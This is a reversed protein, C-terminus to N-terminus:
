ETCMYVFHSQLLVSLRVTTFILTILSEHVTRTNAQVTTERVMHPKIGTACFVPVERRLSKDGKTPPFVTRLLSLSDERQM